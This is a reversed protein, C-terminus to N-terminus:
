VIHRMHVHPLRPMCGGRMASCHHMRPTKYAPPALPPVVPRTCGSRTLTHPHAYPSAHAQAGRRLHPVTHLVITISGRGRGAKCAGIHTERARLSTQINHPVTTIAVSSGMPHTGKIPTQSQLLAPTPTGGIRCTTGECPCTCQGVHHLLTNATHAHHNPCTPAPPHDGLLGWPVEPQWLWCVHQLVQLSHTHAHHMGLGRRPTCVRFYICAIADIHHASDPPHSHTNAPTLQPHPPARVSPKPANKRPAFLVRGHEVINPLLGGGARANLMPSWKDTLSQLPANARGVALM